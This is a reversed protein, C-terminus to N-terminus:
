YGADAPDAPEARLKDAARQATNIDATFSEHVKRFASCTAIHLLAREPTLTGDRLANEALILEELRNRQLDEGVGLALIEKARHGRELRSVLLDPPPASPKEFPGPM